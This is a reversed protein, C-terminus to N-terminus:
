GVTNLKDSISQGLTTVTSKALEVGRTKATGLLDRGLSKVGEWALSAVPKLLPAALSALFGFFPAM